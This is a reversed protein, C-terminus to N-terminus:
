LEELGYQVVTCKVNTNHAFTVLGNVVQAMTLLWDACYGVCIVPHMMMRKGAMDSVNGVCFAM